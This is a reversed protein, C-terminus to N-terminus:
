VFGQNEEALRRGEQMLRTILYFLACVLMLMLQESSVGVAMHRAGGRLLWLALTRAPLEVISLSTALLTAGAFARLHGISQATFLDQRRFNLLLRDLRWLGYALVLLAPLSLAAGVARQGPTLALKAASDIGSATMQITVAGIAPAYTSWALVFFVAQVAVCLWLLARILSIQM